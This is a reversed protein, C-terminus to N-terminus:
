CPATEIEYESITNFSTGIDKDDSLMASASPVTMQAIAFLSCLCVVISIKSKM